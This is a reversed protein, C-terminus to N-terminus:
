KDWTTSFIGTIEGAVPARHVSEPSTRLIFRLGVPKKPHLALTIAHGILAGLLIGQFAHLCKHRCTM